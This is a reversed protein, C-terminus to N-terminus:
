ERIMDVIPTEHTYISRMYFFENTPLAKMYALTITFILGRHSGVFSFKKCANSIFNIGM